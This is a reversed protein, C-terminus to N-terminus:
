FKKGRTRSGPRLLVTIDDRTFYRHDVLDARDDALASGIWPCRWGTINSVHAGIRSDSTVPAFHLCHTLDPCRVATIRGYPSGDATRWTACRSLRAECYGSRTDAAAAM